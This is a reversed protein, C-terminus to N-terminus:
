SKSDYMCMPINYYELQMKNIVNRVSFHHWEYRIQRVCYTDCPTVSNSYCTM